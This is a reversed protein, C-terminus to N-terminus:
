NHGREVYEWNNKKISGNLHRFITSRHVQVKESAEQVSNFIEGTKKYRVKKANPSILHKEKLTKSIKERTEKSVKHGM